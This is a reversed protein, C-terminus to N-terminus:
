NSTKELGRVRFNIFKVVITTSEPCTWIERIQKMACPHKNTLRVQFPFKQNPSKTMTEEEAQKGVVESGLCTSFV